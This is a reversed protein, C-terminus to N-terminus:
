GGVGSWNCALISEFQSGPDVGHSPYGGFISAGPATWLASLTDYPVRGRYTSYTLQLQGNNYATAYYGAFRELVFQFFGDSSRTRYFTWSRSYEFAGVFVLATPLLLAPALLFWKRTKSRDSHQFAIVAVVPIILELFALRESLLVARVFAFALVLLLRLRLRRDSQQSLRLMAIIAFAIGVQTLSTVGKLSGFATKVDGTSLDQSSLSDLLTSPRVGNRFGSVVFALYGAITLWFLPAIVRGLVAFQAGSLRPWPRKTDTLELDTVGRLLPLSGALVFLLVGCTILYVTHSTLSKPTGWALRYRSDSTSAALILTPIALLFIPGAPALWWIGSRQGLTPSRDAFNGESAAEAARDARWEVAENSM